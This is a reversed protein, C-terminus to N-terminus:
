KKEGPQQNDLPHGCFGCFSHNAPNRERCKPCVLVTEADYTKLFPPVSPIVREDSRRSIIEKIAPLRQIIVVALPIIVMLAIMLVRVVPHMDASTVENM